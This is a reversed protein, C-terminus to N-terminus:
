LSSSSSMSSSVHHELPSHEVLLTSTSPTSATSHSDRRFVDYSRTMITDVDREDWLDRNFRLMILMELSSPDMLRRNPRMILGCRSFLREVINSTPSIHLTSKYPPQQRPRKSEYENKGQIIFSPEDDDSDSRAAVEIGPGAGIAYIAVAAKENHTLSVTAKGQDTAFQIKSIANDFDPCHVLDCDKALYRRLTPYESLLKDFYFRVTSMKVESPNDKQLWVCLEDFSKLCRVINQITSFESDEDDDDDPILNCTTRDFSCKRFNDTEKVLKLYKKLMLYTSRWRTENRLEPNLSTIAALKVRNKLSKLSVMLTHVRSIAASWIPNESESCLFQVALNLKHSACGVLPVIRRISKNRYIWAEIKTCLAGNVYANDGTLFELSSFDRDYSALVDFLYDGIDDATFGFSAAAEVTEPLDQVGCAILRKVVYGDDRVWTAFIGIYHEGDCSWGDFLIGFTPPLGRKINEKILRLLNEMHKTVTKYTTSELNSRKKYLENEVITVPLDAMIIWEIWCFMNKAEPSVVKTVTIWNGLAGRTPGKLADNLKSKVEESHRTRAHNALNSHGAFLKKLCLYACYYHTIRFGKNDKFYRECCRCFVKGEADKKILDFFLSVILQSQQDTNVDM